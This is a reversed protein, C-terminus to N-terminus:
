NGALEILRQAIVQAGDTRIEPKDDPLSMIHELQPVWAGRTFDEPPIYQSVAYQDLAATILENERWNHNLTYIMRTRHGIVEAVTSGGAKGIVVDAAAILNHYDDTEQPINHFNSLDRVQDYIVPMVLFSWGDLARLAQIDTAGWDHGGMSILALRHSPPVNYRARITDRSETVANVLLPVPEIRLFHGFDHAFPMQLALTAKGYASRLSDVLFTYEPFDPLYHEYVWDWTFHTVAVSPVGAVAAIEFAIPPMDAAILQVDNERIFDVEQAIIQPQQALFEAYKQLTNAPDVQLTDPQLMGIDYAICQHTVAATFFKGPAASRVHVRIGRRALERITAQQRAAHGFGHGSIYYAITIDNM